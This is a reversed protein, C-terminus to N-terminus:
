RRDEILERRAGGIRRHMHVMLATGFLPTALNVIPVSVFAAILLGALFVTGQHAQRLAKVEAQAHFRMAALEFYQRGQLYATAVFFVIIGAGAVFLFPVACLYVLVSLLAIKVAEIIARGVPVATGPPDAPYYTREVQEAIEDGFLGAILATVAPMLFIAGVSHGLAAVITLVWFLANLAMHANPGFAGELWLEGGGALWAILRHLAIVVVILLTAALGMSKLLVARFPPSVIQSLAKVAADLM